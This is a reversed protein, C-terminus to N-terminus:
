KSHHTFASYGKPQPKEGPLLARIRAATIGYQKVAEKTGNKNRFAQLEALLEPTWRKGIAPVERDRANAAGAQPQSDAMAHEVNIGQDLRTLDDIHFLWEARPVEADHVFGVVEYGPKLYGGHSNQSPLRYREGFRFIIGDVRLISVLLGWEKIHNDDTPRQMLKLIGRFHITKPPEPEDKQPTTFNMCIIDGTYNICIHLREQAVLHMVDQETFNSALKKAAESVTFFEKEM